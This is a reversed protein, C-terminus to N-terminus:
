EATPRVDDGFAATGVIGVGIATLVDHPPATM